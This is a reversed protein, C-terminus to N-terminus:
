RAACKPGFEGLGPGDEGEAFAECGSEFCFQIKVFVDKPMM